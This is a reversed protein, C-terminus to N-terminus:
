KKVQKTPLTTRPIKYTITCCVIEWTDATKSERQLAKLSDEATDDYMHVELPSYGVIEGSGKPAVIAWAKITKEMNM